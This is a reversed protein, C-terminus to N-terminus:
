LGKGGSAAASERRVALVTLKEIATISTQLLCSRPFFFFFLLLCFVRQHWFLPILNLLWPLQLLLGLARIKFSLYLSPLVILCHVLNQIRLTHGWYCVEEM